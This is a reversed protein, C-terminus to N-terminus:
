DLLNVNDAKAGKEDEVIDFSVSQGEQPTKFGMNNLASLHVFIDKGDDKTIFGYRKDKNFWKIKGKEPM